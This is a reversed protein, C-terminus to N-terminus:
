SNVYEVESDETETSQKLQWHKWMGYLVPVV